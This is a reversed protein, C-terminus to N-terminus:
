QINALLALAQAIGDVSASTIGGAYGAGEGSPMLGEVSCNGNKDRVIRVPSSSRTEVGCLITDPHAFGKIRRDFIKIAQKLSDTVFPPLCEKLDAFHAGIPYTPLVKGYSTSVKNKDFDGFKQTPAKFSQSLGYALKEYKRQFQVGALVDESGFDSPLVGVLLASNANRGDRAHFSMGNTVVGGDESAAAAVVGGPCMCFSFCSRGSDLHCALKYDAPPLDRYNDGYQARSIDAQLHEVRVGIAFPKQQMIVKPALMELTDRSSHGIALICQEADLEFNGKDKNKLVVKNLKGNKTVIDVLRTEFLFKGGLKEIELRINKVIGVLIDTGIHPKADWLIDQGAGFNVFENFVVNIKEDNIGTNLKGDSFTGAGGEGFQINCNVDLIGSKAFKQTTVVREDVNQGREVIIPKVGAKALTLAAFLGCPGSGIVIPSMKPTKFNCQKLLQEITENQKQTVCTLFKQNKKLFESENKLEVGVSIVYKIDGKDRSDISQKVIKWSAIEQSKIKLLVCIKDQLQSRE